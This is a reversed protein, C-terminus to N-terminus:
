SSPSDSTHSLIAAVAVRFYPDNDAILGVRKDSSM